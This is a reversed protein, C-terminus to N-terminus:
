SRNVARRVARVVKKVLPEKGTIVPHRELYARDRTDAEEQTHPYTGDLSNFLGGHDVIEGPRNYISSPRRARETDSVFRTETSETIKNSEIRREIEAM